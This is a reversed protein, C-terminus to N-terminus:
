PTLIDSTELLSFLCGCSVGMACSFRFGMRRIERAFISGGGLAFLGSDSV